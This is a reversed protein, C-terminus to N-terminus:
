EYRIADVPRLMSARVSPYITALFTILISVVCIALIDVWVMKVPLTSFYYVDKPLEIFNYKKLLLCAGIGGICGLVTGLVGVIIGESIFIKMISAPSAGISKLIAVEKGKEMVVMILTSIINFAAVLIILILIIFMVIKELKLASFLNSNMEKWDRTFYPVGLVKDIEKAVSDSEYINKLSVEIGTVEDPTNLFRQANKLSVYVLTTDYEYMGSKFIGVVKYKQMKPTMGMPTLNGKPSVINVEDMNRVGLMNALEIGIIVGPLPKTDDDEAEILNDISGEEMYNKLSIVNGASKPELGRLVVGSVSDGSSIMVQSYIFPTAGVVNDFRKIKEVAEEHETMFGGYQLVVLHSNTGLIKEKLDSEFGTMVSLVIILAMVGIAVGAISIFSIISIFKQGRRSRLYRLGIMLEYPIKM